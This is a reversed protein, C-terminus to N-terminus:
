PRCRDDDGPSVTDRQANAAPVILPLGRGAGLEGVELVLQQSASRKQVIIGAVQRAAQKGSGGREMDVALPEVVHQDGNDSTVLVFWCLRDNPDLALM